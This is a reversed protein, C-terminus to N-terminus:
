SRPTRNGTEGDVFGASQADILEAVVEARSKSAGMTSAYHVRGIEGDLALEGARQAAVLEAHVQAVSKSSEANAVTRYDFGIEGDAYAPLAFLSSLAFVLVLNKM